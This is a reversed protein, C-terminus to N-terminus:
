HSPTVLKVTMLMPELSACIEGVLEMIQPGVNRAELNLQDALLKLDVDSFPADVLEHLKCRLARKDENKMNPIALVVECSLVESHSISASSNWLQMQLLGEEPLYKKIMFPQQSPGKGFTEVADLTVQAEISLKNKM